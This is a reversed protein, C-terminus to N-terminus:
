VPIAENRANRKGRSAPACPTAPANISEHLYREGPRGNGPIM